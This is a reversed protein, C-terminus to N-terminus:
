VINTYMVQFHLAKSLSGIFWIPLKRSGTANCTLAATVRAKEAKQDSVHETSLSKDPMMKWFYGTEDMSFTDEPNYSQTTERIKTMIEATHENRDASAAEGHQSIQRINHRKKFREVWGNAFKPVPKGQYCPLRNWFQLAKLRLIEDTLTNHGADYRQEWEFLAEELVPWDGYSERAKDKWAVVSTSQDLRAYKSSLIECCTSKNLAYGYKEQWWHSCSELSQKGNSDDNYWDRLAKRQSDKVAIRSKKISPAASLSGSM